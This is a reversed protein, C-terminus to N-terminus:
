ANGPIKVGMLTPSRQSTSPARTLGTGTDTARAIPASITMATLTVVSTVPCPVVIGECPLSGSMRAVDFNLGLRPAAETVQEGGLARQPTLEDAVVHPRTQRSDHHFREVDHLVADRARTEGAIRRVHQDRRADAADAPEIEMTGLLDACPRLPMSRAM